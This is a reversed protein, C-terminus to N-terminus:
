EQEPAVLLVVGGESRLRGFPWEHGRQALIVLEDGLDAIARDINRVFPLVRLLHRILTPNLGRLSGVEVGEPPGLSLVLNLTTAVQERMRQGVEHRLEEETFEGGLFVAAAERREHAIRQVEEGDPDAIRCALLNSPFLAPSAGDTADELGPAWQRIASAIDEADKALSSSKVLILDPPHREMQKRYSDPFHSWVVIFVTTGYTRRLSELVDLGSADTRGRSAIRIDLVFIRCGCQACALVKDKESAQIVHFPLTRLAHRLESEPDSDDEFVCVDLGGGSGPSTTVERDKMRSANTQDM